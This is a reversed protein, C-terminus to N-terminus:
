STDLFHRPLTQYHMHMNKPMATMSVFGMCFFCLALSSLQGFFLEVGIGLEHLDSSAGGFSFSSSDLFSYPLVLLMPQGRSASPVPLPDETELSEEPPVLYWGHAYQGRSDAINLM